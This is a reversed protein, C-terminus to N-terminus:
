FPDAAGIGLGIIRGPEEDSGGSWGEDGVKGPDNLETGCSDAVLSIVFPVSGNRLPDEIICFRFCFSFLIVSWCRAAVGVTPPLLPAGVEM